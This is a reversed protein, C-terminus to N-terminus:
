YFKRVKHIGRVSPNPNFPPGVVLHSWLYNQYKCKCIEFCTCPSHLHIQCINVSHLHLIYIYVSCPFTYTYNKKIHLYLHNVSQIHSNVNVRVVSTGGTQFTVCYMQYKLLLGQASDQFVPCGHPWTAWDNKSIKLSINLGLARLSMQIWSRLRSSLILTPRNKSNKLFRWNWNILIKFIL